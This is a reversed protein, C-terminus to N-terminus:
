LLNRRKLLSIFTMITNMTTHYWLIEICCFLLNSKLNGFQMSPLLCFYGYGSKVSSSKGLKNSENKLSLIVLIIQDNCLGTDIYIKDEVVLLSM